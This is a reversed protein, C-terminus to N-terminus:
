RPESVTAKKECLKEISRVDETSAAVLTANCRTVTRSFGDRAEGKSIRLGRKHTNHLSASINLVAVGWFSVVWRNGM